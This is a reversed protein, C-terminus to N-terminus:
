LAIRNGQRNTGEHYFLLRAKYSSQSDGMGVGPWVEAAAAGKRVARGDLWEGHLSWYVPRYLQGM